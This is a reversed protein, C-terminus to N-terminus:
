HMLQNTQKLDEAPYQYHPKAEGGQQYERREYAHQQKSTYARSHQENSM